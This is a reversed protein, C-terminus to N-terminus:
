RLDRTRTWNENENYIKNMTLNCNDGRPTILVDPNKNCYIYVDQITFENNYLFDNATFMIGFISILFLVGSIYAIPHDPLEWGAGLTQGIMFLVFGSYGGLLAFVIFWEM